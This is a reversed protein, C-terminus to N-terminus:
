KRMNKNDKDLYLDNLTRNLESDNATDNTIKFLINKNQTKINVYEGIESMYGSELDSNKLASNILVTEGTPTKYKTFKILDVTEFEFGISKIRNFISSKTIFGGKITKNHM